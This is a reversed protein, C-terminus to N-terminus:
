RYFFIEDVFVWGKDGKGRHWAPLRSVPQAIIKYFRYSVPDFSLNIGEVQNSGYDTPMPYAQSVLLRLQKPHDGGWIEVKAPPMIYSGVNRCYSLTVQGVEPPADEYIMLASFPTEKYGLWQPSRFSGADGKDGDILTLGGRGSYQPDPSELLAASDPRSGEKFFTVKVPDSGLWGEKFARIQLTTFNGIEIPGTYLRAQLSDPKTGDTTYRIEVGPFTHRLSVQEDAALVKQKNEVLPRSLKLLEGEEPQYGEHFTIRPYAEKLQELDEQSLVTNWVYVETLFPLQDLASRLNLDVQTNSLALEKLKKCAKLAALNKGTIDTGNLILKELQEFQAVTNLDEDQIPLDTLNLHVLQDKVQTLEKLLEPEYTQRVFIQASLAPSQASLPYLTRFPNNLEEVLRNSAFEFTYSPEPAGAAPVPASNFFAAAMQRLSDDMAYAKLPRSVDAGEAIWTHLFAIEEGSLQPRGEPPMHEEDQLPLNVRHILNSEAADGPIWLEGTKGGKLLGELSAMNLGGKKKRPNHCSYCKEELIPVVAAEFLPTNETIIKEEPLLPAWVFDAGHTVSAGLHGAALLLVVSAVLLANYARRIRPAYRDLLLLGYALFSVAVGTWKHTALASAEYGEELSLFFGMLASLVTTLVTIHLTFSRIKRFAEPDFEQHFLQFLGLLVILGIPFHLMLPHMRGLPQVWVPLQVKEEFLLLFLLFIHLAFVLNGVLNELRKM